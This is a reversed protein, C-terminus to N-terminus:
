RKEVYKLKNTQFILKNFTSTRLRLSMSKSDIVIMDQGWGGHIHVFNEQHDYFCMYNIDYACIHEYSYTNCGFKSYIHMFKDDFIITIAISKVKDIIRLVKM